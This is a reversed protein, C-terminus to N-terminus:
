PNATMEQLCLTLMADWGPPILGFAAAFKSNDLRSNAPRRAPRPYASTPVPELVPMKGDIIAGARALIAQAFGFWSVTGAATVHYLGSKEHLYDMKVGRATVAQALVGTTIEALARAWTPSGVQDNVVQLKTQERALRLITRLFNRGRASYVWSTRFIFHPIGASQIAQEGALKSQGYVNLPNALDRESYPEKMVGDFVYDTSYHVVFAGLRRAEEAVIGPAVANIAMVQAPESEAEDVSTYAAANVVIQPRITRMQDRIADKSALDMQQRDVAIVQGLSCLTRQLEWAIQGNKGTLLIRTM